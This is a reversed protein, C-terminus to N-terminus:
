QVFSAALKPVTDISMYNDSSTLYLAGLGMSQAEQVVAKYDATPPASHLIIADKKYNESSSLENAPIASTWESYPKEFEVVLDAAKFYESAAGKELTTGPNFVVTNLNRGKATTSISQMYSINTSDNTGPAEDFFIGSVSINKATYSSWGSYIGIQSEVEAQERNAYNTAIYGIVQVNDYSNM